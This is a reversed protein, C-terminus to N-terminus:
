FLLMSSFFVVWASLRLCSMLSMTASSTRRLRYGGRTMVVRRPARMSGRGSPFWVPHSAATQAAVRRNIQDGVNMVFFILGVLLVIALLTVVLVQGGRRRRRTASFTTVM